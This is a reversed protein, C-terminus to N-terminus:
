TGMRFNSCSCASWYLPVEWKGDKHKGSEYAFCLEFAHEALCDPFDFQQWGANSQTCATTNICMQCVWGGFLFTVLATCCTHKFYPVWWWRLLNCLLVSKYEFFKFLALSRRSVKRSNIVVSLAIQLCKLAMVIPRRGRPSSSFNTDEVQSSLSM